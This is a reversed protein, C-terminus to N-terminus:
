VLALPELRTEGQRDAAVGNAPLRGRGDDCLARNRRGGVPSRAARVRAAQPRRRLDFVAWGARVVFGRRRVVLFVHRTRPRASPAVVGAGEGPPAEVAAPM